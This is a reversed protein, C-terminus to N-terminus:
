KKLVVIWDTNIREERPVKIFHRIIESAFYKEIKFGVKEALLM